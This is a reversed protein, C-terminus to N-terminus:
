EGKMSAADDNGQYFSKQHPVRGSCFPIVKSVFICWWLSLKCSFTPLFGLPMMIVYFRKILSIDGLLRGYDLLINPSVQSECPVWMPFVIYASLQNYVSLMGFVDRVCGSPFISYKINSFRWYIEVHILRTFPMKFRIISGSILWLFNDLCGSM